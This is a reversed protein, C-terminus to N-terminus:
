KWVIPTHHANRVQAGGFSLCVHHEERWAPTGHEQFPRQPGNSLEASRPPMAKMMSTGKAHPGGASLHISERSGTELPLTRRTVL